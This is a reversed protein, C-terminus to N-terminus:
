DHSEEIGLAAAFSAHDEASPPTPRAPPPPPSVTHAAMRWNPEIVERFFVAMREVIDRQKEHSSARALKSLQMYINEFAKRADPTPGPM